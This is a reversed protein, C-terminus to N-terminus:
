PTWVSDLIQDAPLAHNFGGNEEAELTHLLVNLMTADAMVTESYVILTSFDDANM